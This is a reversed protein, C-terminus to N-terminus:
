CIFKQLALRFIGGKESILETIIEPAVTIDPSPTQRSAPQSPQRDMERQQSVAPRTVAHKIWLSAEKSCIGTLAGM